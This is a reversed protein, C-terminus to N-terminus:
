VTIPASPEGFEKMLLERIVDSRSQTLGARARIRNAVTAPVAAGVVVLEEGEKVRPVRKKRTVKEM